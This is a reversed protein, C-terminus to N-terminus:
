WFVIVEHALSLRDTKARRGEAQRFAKIRRSQRHRRDFGAGAVAAVFPHAYIGIAEIV